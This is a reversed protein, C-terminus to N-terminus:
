GGFRSLGADFLAADHRPSLGVNTDERYGM